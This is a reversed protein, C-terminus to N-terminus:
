HQCLLSEMDPGHLHGICIASAIATSAQPTTVQPTVGREWGGRESCLSFICLSFIRTCTWINAKNRYQQAPLSHSPDRSLQASWPGMERHISGGPSLQLSQPHPHLHHLPRFSFSSLYLLFSFPSPNHTLFASLGCEGGPFRPTQSPSPGGGSPERKDTLRSQIAM